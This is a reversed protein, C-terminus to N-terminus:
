TEKVTKTGKKAKAAMEEDKEQQADAKVEKSPEFKDLQVKTLCMKFFQRHREQIQRLEDSTVKRSDQMKEVLKTGLAGWMRNLQRQYDFHLRPNRPIDAV